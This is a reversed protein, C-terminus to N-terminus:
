KSLIIEQSMEYSEPSGSVNFDKTYLKYGENEVTIQYKKAPKLIIFYKGDRTPVSTGATKKTALDLITVKVKSYDANPPNDGLVIKGKVLVNIDGQAQNKLSNYYKKLIDQSPDTSESDLFSAIEDLLEHIEQQTANGRDLLAEVKKEIREILIKNLDQTSLKKLEEDEKQEDTKSDKKKKNFTYHIMIEHSLGAYKNINGTIYDYTYGISLNKFLTVGLNLGLAYNSKYTAGIWFKNSWDLNVNADYQLPANPLYRTLLQPTVSIDKKKPLIFKYKLSSMYHRNQTYFTRTDNASVYGIKNNAIQPVALGFEFNKLVFALGANADFTTKNQSNTFLSPDNSNEIIAKSYDISQNIVGVALGLKLFINEKFQLKYSYLANGGIRSNVGKRDSVLILGLGTNKNIANGDLTLINYQPGGKFGTWQTHNVLMINVGDGYGTYAPNYAMPKYFYHNFMVIQQSYSAGTILIFAMIKLILRM